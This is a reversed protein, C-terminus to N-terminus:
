PIKGIIKFQYLKDTPKKWAEKPAKAIEVEVVGAVAEKKAADGEFAKKEAPKGTIEVEVPTDEEDRYAEKLTSLVVVLFPVVQYSVNRSFEHFWSNVSFKLFAYVLHNRSLLKM